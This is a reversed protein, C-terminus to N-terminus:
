AHVMARFIARFEPPRVVMGFSELLSPDGIAVGVDSLGRRSRDLEHVIPRSIVSLLIDLLEGVSHGTGTCVNVIGVARECGALEALLRAVEKVDLFDRVDLLAGTKLVGGGPGLARIQKIFNGFATTEPMGVGLPNFVRAVLVKLGNDLALLGHLTQALKVIGYATRPRCVATEIIRTLAPQQLGYEAASGILVIKPRRQLLLAGELLNVAYFLNAEYLDPLQAAMATGAIHYIVEPQVMRLAAGVQNSSLPDPCSVRTVDAPLVASDRVVAHVQIGRSVFEACVHRGLFGNAGTVIAVTM